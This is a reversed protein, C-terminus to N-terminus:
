IRNLSFEMSVAFTKTVQDPNVVARKLSTRITQVGVIVTRASLVKALVISILVTKQFMNNTRTLSYPETVDLMQDKKEHTIIGGPCQMLTCHHFLFTPNISVQLKDLSLQISNDISYESYM